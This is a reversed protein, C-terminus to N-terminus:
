PAEPAAGILRTVHGVVLAQGPGVPLAAWVGHGALFRGTRRGTRADLVTVLVGQRRAEESLLPNGSPRTRLVVAGAGADMGPTGRGPAELAWLVRGSAPDLGRVRRGERVVLVADSAAVNEALPDLDVVRHRGTGLDVTVGQGGALRAYLRTPFLLIPAAREEGDAAPAGAPLSVAWALEGGRIGRLRYGGARDSVVVTDGVAGVVHSGAVSLQGLPRGDDADAM